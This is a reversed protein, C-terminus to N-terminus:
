VVATAQEVDGFIRLIENLGTVEFIRLLKPRTCVVVLTGNLSRLRSLVGLLVALGTSDVFEVAELDVVVHRSGREVLEILQERLPPATDLNLEGSVALVATRNWESVAVGLEM